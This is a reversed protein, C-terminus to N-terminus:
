SGIALGTLRCQGLPTSSEYYLEVDAVFGDNDTVHLDISRQMGFTGDGLDVIFTQDTNIANSQNSLLDITGDEDIAFQNTTTSFASLGNEASVLTVDLDGASECSGNLRFRGPFNVLTTVGAGPNRQYSIRRAVLGGVKAADIGRLSTELVDAGTISGDVVQGGRVASAGIDVGRVQGDKIQPSGVTNRGLGAAYATGSGLILALCLTSVISAYSPRRM